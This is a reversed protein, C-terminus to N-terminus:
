ADHKARGKVTVPDVPQIPAEFSPFHARLELTGGIATLYTILTSLRMDGGKELRSVRAQDTGLIQAVDLQTEGVLHRLDRLGLAHLQAHKRWQAALQLIRASAEAANRYIEQPRGGYGAEESYVGFGLSQKWLVNSQMGDIELDIWWDGEPKAPADIEFAVAAEAQLRRLFDKIQENM